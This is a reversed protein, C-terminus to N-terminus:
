PKEPLKPLAFDKATLTDDADFARQVADAFTPAWAVLADFFAKRSPDRAANDAHWVNFQRAPNKSAGIGSVMPDFSMSMRLYDYSTFRVVSVFPSEPSYGISRAKIDRAWALFADGRASDVVGSLFGARLCFQDNIRSRRAEIWFSDGKFKCPEDTWNVFSTSFTTAAVELGRNLRGNLIEQFHLTHISPAQVSETSVPREVSSIVQWNGGPLVVNRRGIKLTGSVVDGVRLSSAVVVPGATSSDPMGLFALALLLLPAPPKM